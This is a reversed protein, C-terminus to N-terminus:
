FPTASRFLVPQRTDPHLVGLARAHLLLRGARAEDGYFPDGLIPHGISQLHLRIQHSRGTRPFLELRFAARAKSILRWDTIAEQGDPDIHRLPRQHSFRAISLDIRGSESDLHGTVVAEYTKEVRREAFDTSLTKQASHTRALVVLGSTDMDLRHVVFVPGTREAVISTLCIQKDDGRGPVSLLGTPKDAIIIHQDQHIIRVTEPSPPLYPPAIRM